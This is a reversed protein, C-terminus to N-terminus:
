QRPARAHSACLSQTHHQRSAGFLCASTRGPWAVFVFYARKMAVTLHLMCHRHLCHRCLCVHVSWAALATLEPSLLQTVKVVRGVQRLFTQLAGILMIDAQSSVPICLCSQMHFVKWCIHKVIYHVNCCNCYQTAVRICALNQM